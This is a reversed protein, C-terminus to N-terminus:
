RGAPGQLGPPESGPACFCSQVSADSLNYGAGVLVNRHLRYLVNLDLAKFSGRARDLSVKFYQARGEAYWRDAFQWAGELTFVPAAGSEDNTEELLRAPVAIRSRFDIVNVGVGAALELRESRLFSYSYYLALLSLDLNSFTEDGIFYADDGYNIDRTLTHRSDRDLPLFYHLLRVRHRPRPRITAEGRGLVKHKRFGLDPEADVDTGRTGNSADLRFETTAKAYVFSGSLTLRNDFMPDDRTKTPAEAWALSPLLALLMLYRAL